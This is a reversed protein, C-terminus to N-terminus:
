RYRELKISQFQEGSFTITYIRDYEADDIRPQKPAGLSEAIETLTNSHGVLLINGQSADRLANSVNLKAEDTLVYVDDPMTPTQLTRVTIGLKQALPAATQQTRKFETSYITQINANRLRRALREARQKGIESLDPDKSGDIVKEAHRVLYVKRVNSADPMSACGVIMAVLIVLAFKLM